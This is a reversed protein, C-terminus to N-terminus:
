DPVPLFRTRLRDLMSALYTGTGSEALDFRVILKHSLRAGPACLQIRLRYLGDWNSWPGTIVVQENEGNIWEEPTDPWLYTAEHLFRVYVERNPGQPFSITVREIEVPPFEKIFETPAAPTVGAAVALEFDEYM